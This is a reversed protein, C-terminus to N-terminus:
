QPDVERGFSSAIVAVEFDGRSSVGHKGALVPEQRFELHTQNEQRVRCSEFRHGKREFLLRSHAHACRSQHWFKTILHNEQAVM